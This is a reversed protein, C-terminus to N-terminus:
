ATMTDANCVETPQSITIKIRIARKRPSYTWIDSVRVQYRRNAGFLPTLPPVDRMALRVTTCLLFRIAVPELGKQARLSSKHVFAYFM